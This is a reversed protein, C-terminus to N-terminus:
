HLHCSRQGSDGNSEEIRPQRAAKERVQPVRGDASQILIALQREEVVAKGVQVIISNRQSLFVFEIAIRDLQIMADDRSDREFSLVHKFNSTTSSSAGRVDRPIQMRTFHRSNVDALRCNAESSQVVRLLVVQFKANGVSLLKRERIIAKIGEYADLGCM